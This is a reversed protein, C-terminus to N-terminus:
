TTLIVVIQPINMVIVGTISRNGKCALIDHTFNFYSHDHKFCAALQIVFQLDICYYLIFKPHKQVYQSDCGSLVTCTHICELNYASIYM